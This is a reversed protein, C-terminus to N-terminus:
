STEESYVTMHNRIWECAASISGATFDPKCREPESYARVVLGTVCGARRGAEVDRWRDGVMVSRSVDIDWREAAELLLGPAPKRCACTDTGDHFCTLVDDVPLRRRLRANIEEVSDRTTVGRAVDPQNTVVVLLYGARRLEVCAEAAGETLSLSQATAPPRPVGAQDVVTETLVGDRDLFVAPRM